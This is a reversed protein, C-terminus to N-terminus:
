AVKGGKKPAPALVTGVPAALQNAENHFRIANNELLAKENDPAKDVAREFLLGAARACIFNTFTDDDPDLTSADGLLVSPRAQYTIRLARTSVSTIVSPIKNLQLKLTGNEDRVDYWSRNFPQFGASASVGAYELKDIKKFRDIAPSVSASAIAYVYTGPSCIFNENTIHRPFRWDALRIADNIADNKDDPMYTMHVEAISNGVLDGCYGPGGIRLRLDTRTTAM